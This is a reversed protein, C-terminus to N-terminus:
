AGISPRAPAAWAATPLLSRVSSNTSFGDPLPRLLAQAGSIWITRFPFRQGLTLPIDKDRPQIWEIQAQQLIDPMGLAIDKVAQILLPLDAVGRAEVHLRKQVLPPGDKAIEVALDIGDDAIPIERRDHHERDEPPLEAQAARAEFADQAALVLVPASDLLGLDQRILHRTEGHHIGEGGVRALRREVVREPELRHRRMGRQQPEPNAIPHIIGTRQGCDAGADM